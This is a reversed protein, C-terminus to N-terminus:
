PANKREHIRILARQLAPAFHPENRIDDLGALADPGGLEGLAALAAIRLPSSRAPDAALVRALPLARPENRRAAVALATIRARDAATDDALLAVARDRVLDPPIDEPLTEALGNLALLATGPMASETEDLAADFAALIRARVGTDGDERTLREYVRRLHQIAYERIVPDGSRDEFLALLGEAAARASVDPRHFTAMVADKLARDLGSVRTTDALYVLAEDMGVPSPGPPPSPPQLRPAPPAPPPLVPVETGGDTPPEPPADRLLVGVLVAAALAGLALGLQLRRNRM